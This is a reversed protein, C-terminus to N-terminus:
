PEAGFSPYTGAGGVSHVCGFRGRLFGDPDDKQAGTSIVLLDFNGGLSQEPTIFQRSNESFQNL